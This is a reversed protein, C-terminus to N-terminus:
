LQNTPSMKPAGRAMSPMTAKKMSAVKMAMMNKPQSFTLLPKWRVEVQSVIVPAVREAQHIRTALEHICYGAPMLKLGSVTRLSISSKAATAREGTAMLLNKWATSELQITPAAKTMPTLQQYRNFFRCVSKARLLM